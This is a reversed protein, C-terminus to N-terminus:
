RRSSVGMRCARSSTQGYRPVVQEPPYSDSVYVTVQEGTATGFVGGHWGPPEVATVSHSSVAGARLLKSEHLGASQRDTGIGGAQM